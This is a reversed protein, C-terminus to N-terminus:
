LSTDLSALNQIFSSVILSLFAFVCLLSTKPKFALHSFKPLGSERPCSKTEFFPIVQVSMQIVCLIAGMEEPFLIDAQASGWDLAM